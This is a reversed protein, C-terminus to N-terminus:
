VHFRKALFPAGNEFGPMTSSVLIFPRTLAVLSDHGCPRLVTMTFYFPDFLGILWCACIGESRATMGRFVDIKYQNRCSYYILLTM